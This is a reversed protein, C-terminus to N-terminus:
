PKARAAAEIEVLRMEQSNLVPYLFYLLEPKPVDVSITESASDIVSQAAQASRAAQSLGLDFAAGSSTKLFERREEM